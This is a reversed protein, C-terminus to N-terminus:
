FVDDRSINFNPDREIFKAFSLWPYLKIILKKDNLFSHPVQPWPDIVVAIRSIIITKGM